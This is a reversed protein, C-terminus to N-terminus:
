GRWAADTWAWRDPDVAVINLDKRVDEIPWEFYQEWNELPLPRKLAAGMELGVTISEMFSPLVRPYHLNTRMTWTSSLYAHIFNLMGSLEASFYNSNITMYMYMMGLEGAPDTGFGTVLHEIDHVLTRQKNYCEFDSTPVLDKYALVQAFGTSRYFDRLIAGLTGVPYRDATDLDLLTQQRLDLWAAFEPNAERQRQMVAEVESMNLLRHFENMVEPVLQLAGVDDGNRRLNDQGILDRLLLSNLWKSNSTLLSTAGTASAKGEKYYLDEEASMKLNNM